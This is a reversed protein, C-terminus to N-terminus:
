YGGRSADFEMQMVSQLRSWTRFQRDVEELFPDIQGTRFAKALRGESRIIQSRMFSARASMAALTAMVGRLDVENFESMQAYFQDIEAQFAVTLESGQTRAPQRIAPERESM